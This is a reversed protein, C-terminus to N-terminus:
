VGIGTTVDHKPASRVDEIVDYDHLEGPGFHSYEVAAPKGPIVDSRRRAVIVALSVILVLSAPVAFSSVSVFLM